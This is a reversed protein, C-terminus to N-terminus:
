PRIAQFYRTPVSSVSTHLWQFLGSSQPTNTSWPVWPALNTSTLVRYTAGAEGAFPGQVSPGALRQIIFSPKLGQPVCAHSSMRIEGIKIIEFCIGSFALKLHPKRTKLGLGLAQEARVFQFVKAQASGQRLYAGADGLIRCLIFM